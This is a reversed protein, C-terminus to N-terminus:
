WVSKRAVFKSEVLTSVYKWNLIPFVIVLTRTFAYYNNYFSFWNKTILPNIILLQNSMLELMLENLVTKYIEEDLLKRQLM